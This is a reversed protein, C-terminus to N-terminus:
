LASRLPRRDRWLGDAIMWQRLTERGVTIGHAERLKEAALTPGFDWYWERIMALVACRVAEPKRRNGRRGRRKSILGTPGEIRLGEAVSVGSPARARAASEGGRDDIAASGFGAAGRAAAAGSREDALGDGWVGGLFGGPLTMELQCVPSMKIPRRCPCCTCEPLPVTFLLCVFQFVFPM